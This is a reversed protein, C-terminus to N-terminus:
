SGPVTNVATKLDSGNIPNARNKYIYFPGCECPRKLCRKCNGCYREVVVKQLDIRLMGAIAFIWALADSYEKAINGLRETNTTRCERMDDFLHASEAENVEENLRNIAYDIGRERNKDGYLSDISDICGSITLQTQLPNPASLTPTVRDRNKPCTCKGLSRCYICIGAPYKRCLSEVLPLNGFRDASAVTASFVSALRVALVDMNPASARIERGFEMLKNHLVFVRMADDMYLRNRPGYLENISDIIQKLNM